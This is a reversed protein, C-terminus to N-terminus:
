VTDPDPPRGTEVLTVTATRHEVGDWDPQDWGASTVQVYRSEGWVTQFLWVDGSSLFADVQHFEDISRARLTLRDDTAGAVDRTVVATTRGLPRHVQVRHPKDAAHGPLAVPLVFSLEPNLPNKVVRAGALPVEIPSAETWDSYLPEGDVLRFSAARYIAAAPKPEWEVDWVSAEDDDLELGAGGRVPRWEGAEYDVAYEVDIGDTAIEGTAAVDIRVRMQDDEANVDILPPDPAEVDITFSESDWDSWISGEGEWVQRARVRVEYSGNPLGVPIRVSTSSSFVTGSQWVVQPTVGTTLVEIQYADQPQLDDTYTWTVTPRSTTTITGSPGTVVVVPKEDVDVELWVDYIRSRETGSGSYVTTFAVLVQNVLLDGDVIDGWPRNASTPWWAPGGQVITTGTRTRTNAEIQMFTGGHTIVVTQAFIRTAGTAEASSRDRRRVQRIKAGEPLVLPEFTVALTGVGPSSPGLAWTDDDNDSIVDLLETDGVATWGSTDPDLADPRLIVVAM